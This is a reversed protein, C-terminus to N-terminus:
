GLSKNTFQIRVQISKNQIWATQPVFCIKGNIIRKTHIEMKNSDIEKKVTEILSDDDFEFSSEATFDKDMSYMEMEGLIANLLATKGSGIGGIIFTLTGKRFDLDINKLCFDIGDTKKDKKETAKWKARECALAIALESQSNKGIMIKSHEKQELFTTIRKFSTRANKMSGVIWPLASLPFLLM